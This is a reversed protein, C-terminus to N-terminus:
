CLSKNPCPSANYKDSSCSTPKRATRATPRPINDNSLAYWLSFGAFFLLIGSFGVAFFMFRSYNILGAEVSTDGSQFRGLMGVFISVALFAITLYGDVVSMMAMTWFSVRSVTSPTNSENMQRILLWIQVIMVSAACLAFNSAKDYYKEVKLGESGKTSLVFGCTPSYIISSLIIPPAPPVPAGTPRRLEQEIEHITELTM